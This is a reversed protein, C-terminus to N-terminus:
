VPDNIEIVEEDPLEKGNKLQRFEELIIACENCLKLKLIGDMAKMEIIYPDKPRPNTCIDCKKM